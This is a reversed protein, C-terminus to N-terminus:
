TMLFVGGNVLVSVFRVIIAGNKELNWEGSIGDINSHKPYLTTVSGTDSLSETFM